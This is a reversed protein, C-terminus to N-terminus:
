NIKVLAGKITTQTGSSFEATTSGNVKTQLGALNLKNGGELELDNTATVAISGAADLELDSESGIAVKGASTIECNAGTDIILQAGVSVAM